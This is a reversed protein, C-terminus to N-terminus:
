ESRQAVATLREYVRGVTDGASTALSEVKLQLRAVRHLRTPRGVHYGFQALVDPAMVEVMASAYDAVALLEASDRFWLAARELDAQSAAIDLGAALVRLSEVPREHLDELHVRHLNPLEGAALVAENDEQWRRIANALPWGVLISSTRAVVQRGDRVLHILQADPYLRTLADIEYIHGASHEVVRDGGGAARAAELPADVLNRVAALFDQEDVFRVLGQQGIADAREWV